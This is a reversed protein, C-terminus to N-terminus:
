KMRLLDAEAARTMRLQRVSPAGREIYDCTPYASRLVQMEGRL